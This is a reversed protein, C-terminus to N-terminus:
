TTAAEPGPAVAEDDDLRPARYAPFFSPDVTEAPTAALRAACLARYADPDVIWRGVSFEHRRPSFRAKFELLSDARSGRGGGLHLVRNGRSGAWRRAEDYLLPKPSPHVGRDSASLLTQVIGEFETFVGAAVTAEGRRTVLLHVLGPLVARLRALDDADFYYFRTANNRQMTDHYLRIFADVHRWETDHETVLGDRRSRDIAHRADPHYGARAREEDLACDISVTQGLGLVPGATDGADMGAGTEDRLQLSAALEANGLLPHLRTFVAVVRQQRWVDLLARWADALFPDGPSCGWAIPGPYGYVSTVDMADSGVLGPVEAVPRLLYPWALGRPGDGAVVLMARGAGSAESWGHYGATHYIDRPIGRLRREWAADRPSLLEVRV